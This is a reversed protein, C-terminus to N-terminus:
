ENEDVEHRFADIVAALAEDVRRIDFIKHIVATAKSAQLIFADIKNETEIRENVGISVHHCTIQGFYLANQSYPTSSYQMVRIESSKEGVGSARLIWGCVKM